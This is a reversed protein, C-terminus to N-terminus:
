PSAEESRPSEGSHGPPANAPATVGATWAGLLQECAPRNPWDAPALRLAAELDAIARAREGMRDLITARTMRAEPSNPDSSVARDATDLAPPLWGNDRLILARLVLAPTFRSHLSLTESTARYANELEGGQYFRLARELNYGAQLYDPPNHWRDWEHYVNFIPNCFRSVVHAAPLLLNAALVIAMTARARRADDLRWTLLGFVLLPTFMAVNRSLDAAVAMAVLMTATATLLLLTKVAASGQRWILWIGVGVFFWGARFTHWVGELFRYWPTQALERLSGYQQIYAQSDVDGQMFAAARIGVYPLLLVLAIAVDAGCARWDIRGTDHAQWALRVCLTLPLALIFREDVWPCLLAAVVLPWRTPALAVALMGLIVWSDFYALWGMSVHFWSAAGTIAAVLFTRWRDATRHHAWWAVYALVLVCGVHPLAFFLAHPLSLYHGVLPFLLRWRLPRNSESYDTMWPDRLQLLTAGGRNVDPNLLGEEVGIGRWFAVRPFFFWLLLLTALIAAIWPWWRNM